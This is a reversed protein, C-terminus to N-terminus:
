NNVLVKVELPVTARDPTLQISTSLTDPDQYYQDPVAYEPEDILLLADIINPYLEASGRGDLMELVIQYSGEPLHRFHFAGAFEGDMGSVQAAQININSQNVLRVNVGNIPEGWETVVWGELTLEGLEVGDNAAENENFNPAPDGENDFDEDGPSQDDNEGQHSLDSLDHNGGDGGCAALSWCLGLALWGMARNM